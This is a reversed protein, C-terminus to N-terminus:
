KNTLISGCWFIEMHLAFSKSANILNRTFVNNILDSLGKWDREFRKTWSLSFIGSVYESGLWVDLISSKALKVLPLFDNVMEALLEM